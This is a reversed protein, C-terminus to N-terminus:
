RLGSCAQLALDESPPLGTRATLGYRSDVLLCVRDCGVAERAYNVLKWSVSELEQDGAVDALFHAYTSIRTLEQSIDSIRRAKLYLEIEAAAHALLAARGHTTPVDSPHFWAHLVGVVKKSLPIPVFIQQFPTHNYPPLSEPAPADEANLGRLGESPGTQIDLLIAQGQEAVSRVARQFSLEQAPFERLRLSEYNHAIARQLSQGTSMEYALGVPQLAHVVCEAHLRLYATLDPPDKAIQALRASIDAAM